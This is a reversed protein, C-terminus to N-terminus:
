IPIEASTSSSQYDQNSFSHLPLSATTLIILHLSSSLPIHGSHRFYDLAAQVENSPLNSLFGGALEALMLM